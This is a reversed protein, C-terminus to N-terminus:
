LRSPIKWVKVRDERQEVKMKRQEFNKKQDKFKSSMFQTSLKLEEADKKVSKIESKMDNVFIQLTSRYAHDQIEMMEKLVEITFCEAKGNSAM